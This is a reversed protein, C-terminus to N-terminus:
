TAVLRQASELLHLEGGALAKDLLFPCFSIYPDESSRLGKAGWGVVDWFSPGQWHASLAAAIPLSAM